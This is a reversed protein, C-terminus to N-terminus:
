LCPRFDKFGRGLKSKQVLLQHGIKNKLKCKQKSKLKKCKKMKQMFKCKIRKQIKTSKQKTSKVKDNPQGTWKFKWAFDPCSYVTSRQDAVKEM